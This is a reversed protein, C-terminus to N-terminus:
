PPCVDFPLPSPTCVFIAITNTKTSM